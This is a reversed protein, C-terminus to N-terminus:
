SVVPYTTTFKQITTWFEEQSIGMYACAWDITSQRWEGDYQQVLKVGEERTLYGNRIEQSADHSARGIGWKAHMTLYHLPDLKDDISNYTSYTGETREANPEFGAHEVAYYYASQPDWRLYHGLAHVELGETVVRPPLYLDLDHYSLEYKHVLDWLRLGSICTADSVLEVKEQWGSQGEYDADDEGFMVLNIGHAAALKPALSRQGLIFPQFPHAMTQFALRTLLRHVKPNPTVLINDFGMELWRYFNRRGVDTYAHPAWTCTLPHMGLELLRHAAFVSDKGGSGPVLVDPRGDSRRYRALLVRLEEERAQWDIKGKAEAVRCAGCVGEADFSMRGPEVGPTRAYERSSIPRNSSIVCKKCFTTVEATGQSSSELRARVDLV